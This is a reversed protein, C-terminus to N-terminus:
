APYDPETGLNSHIEHTSSVFGRALQGLTNKIEQLFRIKCKFYLLCPEVQVFDETFISTFSHWLKTNVMGAEYELSRIKSVVGRFEDYIM